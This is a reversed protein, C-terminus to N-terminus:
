FLKSLALTRSGNTDFLSLNEATKIVQLIFFTESLYKLGTDSINNGKDAAQGVVVNVKGGLSSLRWEQAVQVGALTCLKTRRTKECTKYNKTSYM